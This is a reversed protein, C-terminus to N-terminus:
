GGPSVLLPVTLALWWIEHDALRAALRRVGM